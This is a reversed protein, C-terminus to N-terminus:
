RQAFSLDSELSDCRAESAANAFEIRLIFLSPPMSSVILSGVRIASEENSTGSDSNKKLAKM